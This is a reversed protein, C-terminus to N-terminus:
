TKFLLLCQQVLAQARKEVLVAKISASKHPNVRPLITKSSEIRTQPTVRIPCSPTITEALTYENLVLVM